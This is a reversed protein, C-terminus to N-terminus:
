QWLNVVILIPDLRDGYHFALIASPLSPHGLIRFDDDVNLSQAAEGATLRNLLSTECM